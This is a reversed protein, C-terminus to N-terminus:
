EWYIIRNLKIFFLPFFDLSNLNIIVGDPIPDPPLPSVHQDAAQIAGFVNGGNEVKM